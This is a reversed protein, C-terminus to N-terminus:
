DGPVSNEYTRLIRRLMFYSGFVLSFMLLFIMWQGFILLGSSVLVSVVFVAVVLSGKLDQCFSGIPEIEKCKGRIPGWFGYPRVRKYFAILTDESERPFLYLTLLWLAGVIVAVLCVTIAYYSDWGTIGFHNMLRTQPSMAGNFIDSYYLFFFAVFPSAMHAVIDSQINVRWWFWRLISLVSAGVRLVSLIIM